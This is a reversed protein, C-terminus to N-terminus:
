EVQLREVHATDQPFVGVAGIQLDSSPKISVPGSLESSMLVAQQIQKKSRGNLADDSQGEM